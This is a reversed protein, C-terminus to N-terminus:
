RHIKGNFVFVFFDKLKLNNPPPAPTVGRNVPKYGTVYNFTLHNVLIRVLFLLTM